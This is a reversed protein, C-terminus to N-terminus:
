RSRRILRLVGVALSGFALLSVTAPEPFRQTEWTGPTFLWQSGTWEVNTTERVKDDDWAQFLFSFPETRPGPFQLAFYLKTVDTGDAVLYTGDDFTQTWTPSFPNIGTPQAFLDPPLMYMQLHDFPGINREVFINAWNAKSESDDFIVVEASSRSALTAIFLVALCWKLASNM